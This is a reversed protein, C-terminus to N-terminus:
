ESATTGNRQKELEAVSMGLSVPLCCTYGSYQPFKRYHRDKGSIMSKM